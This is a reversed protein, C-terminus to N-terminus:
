DDSRFGLAGGGSSHMEALAAPDRAARLFSRLAEIEELVTAGFSAGLLVEGAQARRLAAGLLAEKLYAATFGDTKAAIQKALREIDLASDLRGDDALRQLVRRAFTAREAAEPLGIHFVRDFRSPRKLLAEDIRGPHNSSAIVLLGTNNQFGDLENLFVTRHRDEVLGDIDEFAVICPSLARAREFIVRVAEQGGEERLDRVYLFPLAPLAAAVAKCIMTKGTGPPGVLLIGRRWAFGLADFAARHQVFGEVAERIGDLLRAPLVIDDWTVSGLEEDIDPASTWGRSYRLARNLPRLAFTGLQQVFEALVAADDGSVLTQWFCSSSVLELTHGQWTVTYWGIYPESDEHSMSLMSGSLISTYITFQDLFQILKSYEVSMVVLAGSPDHERVAAIMTAIPTGDAAITRLTANVAAERWDTPKQTTPM